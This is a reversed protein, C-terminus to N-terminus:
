IRDTGPTGSTISEGPAAAVLPATDPPMEREGPQWGPRGAVLPAPDQAGPADGSRMGAAGALRRAEGHSAMVHHYSAESGQERVTDHHRSSARAFRALAFGAVTAVGLFVMPQRRAFDEASRLLDGPSRQRLARAMGDVRGAADHITRALEPSDSELEDAARHIARAIGGVQEAGRQVGQQAAQEARARAGELAAAGEEKLSQAAASAEAAVTAAAERATARVDEGARRAEQRAREAATQLDEAPRKPMMGPTTPDSM